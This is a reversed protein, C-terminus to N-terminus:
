AGTTHAAVDDLYWGVTKGTADPTVGRLKCAVFHQVDGVTRLHRLEDNTIAVQLVEEALMIIEMMTLSDLGLDEVLRPNADAVQLQARRNREVFREIVGCVIPNVHAMDGTARFRCAAEYTAPSCRKLAERLQADDGPAPKQAAPDTVNEPAPNPTVSSM